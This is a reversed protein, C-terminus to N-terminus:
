SQGTISIAREKGAVYFKVSTPSAVGGVADIRLYLNCQNVTVVDLQGSVVGSLTTDLVVFGEDVDASGPFGNDAVVHELLAIDVTPSTGGGLITLVQVTKWGRCSLSARSNGPLEFLVELDASDAAVPSGLKKRHLCYNPKGLLTNPRATM